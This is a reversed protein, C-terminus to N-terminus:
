GLLIKLNEWSWKYIKDSNKAGLPNRVNGDKRGCLLYYPVNEEQAITLEASIGKASNTYRGCIIIVVDCNTINQRAYDKWRSDIAQKISMDNISFPSDPLKSQGVLFQKLDLDNDYDFSIFVKTKM